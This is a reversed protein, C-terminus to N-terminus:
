ESAFLRTQLFLMFSVPNSGYHPRLEDPVLYGSVLAGLAFRLAGMAGLHRLGGLSFKGIGFEQGALPSPDEFLHDTKLYEARGFVSYPSAFHWISEALYGPHSAGSEHNVGAAVTSSWLAEGVSQFHSASVTTRHLSVEPELQESSALYGHSAQLSWEPAPNFSIRGSYSDFEKVEINYRNQDPERGNFASAELKWNGSTAGVTVVGFTIHTSDLWHHTLPAEPIDIGSARHMFAPPGLAPEGPLGAYGFVSGTGIPVSYTAALEMFLDHPHQRDVLPTIGDATEGTQFLLPYGAKGMLPDLSLMTRIGFTGPGLERQGMGMLMSPVFFKNGGRPGGQHDYILHAFGHFMLMWEGTMVHIGEM